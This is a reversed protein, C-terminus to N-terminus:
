NSNKKDFKFFSAKRDGLRLCEIQGKTTSLFRLLCSFLLFCIRSFMSLKEPLLLFFRQIQPHLSFALASRFFAELTTCWNLPNKKKELKCAEPANIFQLGM